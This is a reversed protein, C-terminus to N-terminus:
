QTGTKMTVKLKPYGNDWESVRGNKFTVSSSGYRFETDTFSDPTGQVAIVEDKTSGVTFYGTPQGPIPAQSKPIIKASLDPRANTVHRGDPRVTMGKPLISSSPQEGDRSQASVESGTDELQPM